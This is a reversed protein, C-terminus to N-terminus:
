SATALSPPSPVFLREDRLLAWIVDVLRRALAIVAQRHRKGEARKRRYFDQSPGDNSISVFAALHFM